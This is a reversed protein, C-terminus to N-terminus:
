AAKPQNVKRIASRVDSPMKHDCYLREDGEMGKEALFAICEQPGQKRCIETAEAAWEKIVERTEPSLSDGIGDLAALKVAKVPEKEPKAIEMEAVAEDIHLEGKHWLDLAAGFRM